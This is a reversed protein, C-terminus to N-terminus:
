EEKSNKFISIVIGIGMFVISSILFMVNVFKVNEHNLTDFWMLSIWQLVFFNFAASLWIRRTKPFLYRMAYEQRTYGLSLITTRHVNDYKDISPAVYNSIYIFTALVMIAGGFVPEVTYSSYVGFLEMGLPFLDHFYKLYGKSVSKKDVVKGRVYWLAIVFGAVSVLFSEIADNRLFTLVDL